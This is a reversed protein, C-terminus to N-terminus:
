TSLSKPADGPLAVLTTTKTTTGLPHNCLFILARASSRMCHLSCLGSLTGYISNGGDLGM